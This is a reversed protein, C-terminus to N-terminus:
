EAEGIRRYGPNIHVEKKADQELAERIKEIGEKFRRIAKAKQEKYEMYAIKEAMKATIMIKRRYLAKKSKFAM